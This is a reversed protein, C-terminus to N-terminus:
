PKEPGDYENSVEYEIYYQGFEDCKFQDGFTDRLQTYMRIEWDTADNCISWLPYTDLRQMGYRIKGELKLVKAQINRLCDKYGQYYDLSSPNAKRKEM